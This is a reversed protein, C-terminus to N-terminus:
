TCYTVDSHRTLEAEPRGGTGLLGDFLARIYIRLVWSRVWGRPRISRYGLAMCLRLVSWSLPTIPGRRFQLLRNRWMLYTFLYQRPGDAGSTCTALLSQDCVVRLGRERLDAGLVVDEWYLFFDDRIQVGARLSLALCAGDLWDVDITGTGDTTRHHVDGCRSQKGGASQEYGRKSDRLVPGCAGINSHDLLTQALTDVTSKDVEVDHTLLVAVEAQHQRWHDLGVNMASGYGENDPMLQTVVGPPMVGVPTPADGNPNHIVLIRDSPWGQNVLRRALQAAPGTSYSLIVIGVRQPDPQEAGNGSGVQTGERSRISM